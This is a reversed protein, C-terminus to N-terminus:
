NLKSFFVESTTPRVWRQLRANCGFDMYWTKGLASPLLVVALDDEITLLQTATCNEYAGGDPYPKLNFSGRWGAPNNNTNAEGVNEKSRWYKEPNGYTTWSVNSTQSDMDTIRWVWDKVPDKGCGQYDNTAGGDTSNFYPYPGICADDSLGTRYGAIWTYTVAAFVLQVAPIENGSM